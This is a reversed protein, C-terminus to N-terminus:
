ALNPLETLHNPRTFNPWSILLTEILQFIVIEILQIETLHDGTLVWLESVIYQVKHYNHYNKTVQFDSVVQLFLTNTLKWIAERYIYQSITVKSLM